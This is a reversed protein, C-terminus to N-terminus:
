DNKSCEIFKKGLKKGDLISKTFTMVWGKATERFSLEQKGATDIEIAKELVIDKSTGDDFYVTLKAKKM